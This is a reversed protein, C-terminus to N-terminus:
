GPLPRKADLEKLLKQFDDRRRVADLDPDKHLMEADKFDAAVAQQLLAVARGAHRDATPADGACAGAALAYVCACGYLTDADKPWRAALADAAVVADAPRGHQALAALRQLYDDVALQENGNEVPQWGLAALDAALWRRGSAVGAPREARSAAELQGIRWALAAEASVAFEGPYRTRLDRWLAQREDKRLAVTVGKADLRQGSYLQGLKVLDGAPRDDSPLPSATLSGDIAPGVQQQSAVDWIRILGWYEVVLLSTKPDLRMGWAHGEKCELVGLPNGRDDWLRVAGDLSATAITQGDPSFAALTVADQHGLREGIPEGTATRWMRATKDEGCTVLLEGDPSFAAGYVAGEHQLPRGAPEGTRADVLYVTGDMSAAALRRSDPSFVAYSFGAKSQLLQGLRRWTSADWLQLSTMNFVGPRQPDSHGTVVRSQDPSIAANDFHTGPPLRRQIPDLDPTTVVKREDGVPQAVAKAAGNVLKTTTFRVM